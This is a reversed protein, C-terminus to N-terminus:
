RRRTSCCRWRWRTCPRPRASPSREVIRAEPMLMLVGGRRMGIQVGAARALPSAALVREGELVVCGADTSWNPSFVELPLRPLYLGIWLRMANSCPLLSPCSCRRTASRDGANSSVSTSGARPRAAAVAAAAGALFGPRQGAPADHLVPNRRVPGGPAPPAPKRRACPQDLVAAGRLQRQAAGARGGVACRGRPQLAALDAPVAARRARGAGAGAASPAAAPARHPALGGGGAGPAAPANRRHRATAVIFRDPHRDALRRGAIAEVLGPPRHRCLPYPRAGAALCAVTFPAIRRAYCPNTFFAHNPYHLLVPHIYLVRDNLKQCSTYLECVRSKVKHKHLRLRVHESQRAM